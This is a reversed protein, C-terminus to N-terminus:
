LRFIPGDDPSCISISYLPVSHAYFTLQTCLDLVTCLPLCHIKM